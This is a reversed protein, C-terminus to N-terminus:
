GDNQTEMDKTGEAHAKTKNKKVEFDFKKLWNMTLTLNLLKNILFARVLVIGIRDNQIINKQYGSIKMSVPKWILSKSKVQIISLKATM